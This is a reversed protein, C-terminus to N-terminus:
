NGSSLIQVDMGVNFLHAQIGDIHKEGCSLFLASSSSMYRIDGDSFNGDVSKLAM